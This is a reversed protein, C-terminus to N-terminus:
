WYGADYYYTTMAGSPKSQSYYTITNDLPEWGAVKFRIAITKRNAPEGSDVSSGTQRSGPQLEPM